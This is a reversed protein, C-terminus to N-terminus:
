PEQFSNRISNSIDLVFSLTQGRWDKFWFRSGQKTNLNVTAPCTIWGMVIGEEQWYLHESVPLSLLLKPPSEVM